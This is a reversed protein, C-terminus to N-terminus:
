EKKRIARLKASRSRPNVAIEEPAARVPKKTLITEGPTTAWHRFTHKVIRDELSHFSIVALVGKPALRAWAQPLAATLSELERNVALRLAQFTRTAPHIRGHRYRGPVAQTVVEALAQSTTPYPQTKLAAAIRGRFREEGYTYIVEALEAASLGALLDAVDPLRGLKRELYNLAPVYAAPLHEGTGYRMTLSGGSEFSFGRDPDALQHSGIGLDFLIHQFTSHQLNGRKAKQVIGGGTIADNIYAFNAHITTLRSSFPALREQAQVLSVEDADLGVVSGAPATAQLYVRAHGGQGLTADLLTDGSKPQFLELVENVLVPTHQFETM